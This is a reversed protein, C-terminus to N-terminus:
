KANHRLLRRRCCAMAPRAHQAASVNKMVSERMCDAVAESPEVVGTSIAKLLMSGPSMMVVCNNLIRVSGREATVAVARCSRCVPKTACCDIEIPSNSVVVLVPVLLEFCNCSGTPKRDTAM